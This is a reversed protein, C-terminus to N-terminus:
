LAPPSSGSDDAVKEYVSSQSWDAGTDPFYRVAGSPPRHLFLSADSAAGRRVM